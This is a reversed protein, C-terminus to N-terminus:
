IDSEEDWLGKQVIRNFTAGHVRDDRTGQYQDQVQGVSGLSLMGKSKCQYIHSILYIEYIYSIDYIHYIYVCVYFWRVPAQAAECM